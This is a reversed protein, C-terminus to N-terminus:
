EKIPDTLMFLQVNLQVTCDRPQEQNDAEVAQQCMTRIMKKLRQFNATSVNLTLANFERNKKPVVELAERSIALMEAHFGALSLHGAAEEEPFAIPEDSVQAYTGDSKRTVIGLRCM